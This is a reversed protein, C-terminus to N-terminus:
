EINKNYLMQNSKNIVLEARKLDFHGGAETFAAFRETSHWELRGEMGHLEQPLFDV